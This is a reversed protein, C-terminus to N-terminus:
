NENEYDDYKIYFKKEFYNNLVKQSPFYMPEPLNDLDFWGWEVIEDPEMVKPEGEIVDSFLGITVFHVGNLIDNNVCIGRPNVLKM